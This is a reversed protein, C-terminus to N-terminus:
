DNNPKGLETIIPLDKNVGLMQLYSGLDYPASSPRAESLYERCAAIKEEDSEKAVPSESGQTSSVRSRILELQERAASPLRLAYHNEITETLYIPHPLPISLTRQADPSTIVVDATKAEKGISTLEVTLGGAVLQSDIKDLLFVPSFVSNLSFRVPIDQGFIPIFLAGSIQAVPSPEIKMVANVYGACNEDQSSRKILWNHEGLELAYDTIFQANQYQRALAKTGVIYLVLWAAVVILAFIRPKSRETRIYKPVPIRETSKSQTAEQDIPPRGNKM